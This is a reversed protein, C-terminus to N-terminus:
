LHTGEHYTGGKSPLLHRLGLRFGELTDCFDTLCNAKYSILLLHKFYGDEGYPFLLPYVM